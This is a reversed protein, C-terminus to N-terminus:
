IKELTIKIRDGKKLAPEETGIHLSEFSGEFHIFWGLSISETIYDHGIGSKWRDRFHEKVTLVTAEFCYRIQAEAPEM